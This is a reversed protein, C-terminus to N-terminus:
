LQLTSCVVDFHNHPHRIYMAMNAGDDNFDDEVEQPTFGHWTADAMSYSFICTRLMHAVAMMENTTAWIGNAYMHSEQIYQQVNPHETLNCQFESLERLHDVTATRVALHQDESGTIIYCISRFFCNGDLPIHM